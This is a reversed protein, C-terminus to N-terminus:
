RSGCCPTPAGPAAGCSPTPSSPEAGCCGPAPTVPAAPAAGCGCSGGTAAPEAPPAPAEEATPGLLDAAAKLAARVILAAPVAEYTQGDLVLTRCENDACAGSCQSSGAAAGLIEELTKGAIWIRNSESPNGQFGAMDLEGEEVVLRIGLPSLAPGLTREADRVAGETGACRACTTGGDTVLRQWRITLTRTMVPTVDAPEVVVGVQVGDVVPAPAPSDGANSGGPSRGCGFALFGGLAWSAMTMGKM